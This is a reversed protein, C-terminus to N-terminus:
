QYSPSLQPNAAHDSRYFNMKQLTFFSVILIGLVVCPLLIIATIGDVSAYSVIASIMCIAFGVYAWEKFRKPIFPLLLVVAGIVKFVTLMIRFYDPYGLHRIGEIAPQTNSTSAPMVGEFLVIILTSVWYIITTSKKQAM